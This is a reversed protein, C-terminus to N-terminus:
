RRRRRRPEDDDEDTLPQPPPMETLPPVARIPPAMAQDGNSTKDEDLDAPASQVLRRRRVPRRGPHDKASEVRVVDTISRVEGALRSVVVDQEDMSAAGAETTGRDPAPSEDVDGDSESRAGQPASRSSRTSGSWPFLGGSGESEPTDSVDLSDPARVLVLDVLEDIAKVVSSRPSSTALPVGENVSRPVARTSPVGVDVPRDIAREVDGVLLGSKSDSRVMAVLIADDEVGLRTLTLLTVTLSRLAAVDLSATVVVVDAADLAALTRDDFASATDLVAFPAEARVAAIVSAVQGSSITEALAPDVPGPLLRATGGIPLLVQALSEADLGVKGDALDQITWKPSLGHMIAQDASALDLDILTTPSATRAALRAALNASVVSTGVGGKTSFVAVTVGPQSTPGDSRVGAQEFALVLDEASFDPSLVDRVGARMATRLVETTPEAVLLVAPPQRLSSARAALDVAGGIGISSGVVVVLPPAPSDFLQEAEGVNDIDVVPTNWRTDRLASAIRERLAEDRAVTLIM